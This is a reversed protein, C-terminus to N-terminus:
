GGLVLHNLKLALNSFNASYLSHMRFMAGTKVSVALYLVVRAVLTMSLYSLTRAEGMVTPM